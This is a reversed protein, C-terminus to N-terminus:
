LSHSPLKCGPAVQTVGEIIARQALNECGLVLYPPDSARTSRDASMGYIRVGRTGAAEVTATESAGPGLQAVAHFGAALGTLHVDPAHENLATLLADRKGAYIKRMRRLHRDFRGTQILRALV